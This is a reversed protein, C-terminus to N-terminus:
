MLPLSMIAQADENYKPQVMLSRRVEKSEVLKANSKTENMMKDWWTDHEVHTHCVSPINWILYLMFNAMLLGYYEQFRIYKLTFFHLTPNKPHYSYAPQRCNHMIKINIELKNTYGKWGHMHNWLLKVSFSDRIRYTILSINESTNSYKINSM